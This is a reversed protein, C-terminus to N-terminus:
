WYDCTSVTFSKVLGELPGLMDAIQAPTYAGALQLTVTTVHSPKKPETEADIDSVEEGEEGTVYPLCWHPLGNLLLAM